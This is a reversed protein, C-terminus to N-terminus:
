GAQDDLGVPGQDGARPNDTQGKEFEPQVLADNLEFTEKDVKASATFIPVVTEVAARQFLDDALERLQTVAQSVSKSVAGHTFDHRRSLSAAMARVARGSARLLNQNEAAIFHRIEEDSVLASKCDTDGAELRVFDIEVNAPDNTYTATRAGQAM